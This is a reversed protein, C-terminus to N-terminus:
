GPFPSAAAAPGSPACPSRMVPPLLGVPAHPSLGPALPPTRNLCLGGDGDGGRTGAPGGNNRVENAGTRLLQQAPRSADNQPRERAGERCLGRAFGSSRRQEPCSFTGVNLFGGRSLLPDPARESVDAHVRWIIPNCRQPSSAVVVRCSRQTRHTDIRGSLTLRRRRLQELGASRVCAMCGCCQQTM